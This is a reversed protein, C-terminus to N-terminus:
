CWRRSFRQTRTNVPLDRQVYEVFLCCDRQLCSSCLTSAFHVSPCKPAMPSGPCGASCRYGLSSDSYHRHHTWWLVHQSAWVFSQQTFSRFLRSISHFVHLRWSVLGNRWPLPWALSRSGQKTKARTGEVRCAIDDQSPTPALRHRLVDRAPTAQRSRSAFRATRSSPYVPVLPHTRLHVRTRQLLIQTPCM